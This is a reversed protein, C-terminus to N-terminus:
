IPLSMQFEDYKAAKQLNEKAPLLRLNDLGWCRQFDICYYSTINFVSVPIIHDIHLKDFDDWTYGDPMTKTLYAVLDNRTYGVLKEWSSGDKKNRLSQRVLNSMRRKLIYSPKKKNKEHRKKNKKSINKANLISYEKNRKTIKEKNKESYERDYKSKREKNEKYWMKARERNEIKNKSNMLKSCEKCSNSKAYRPSEHGRNCKELPVFTAEGDSIAKLRRRHSEESLVKLNPM